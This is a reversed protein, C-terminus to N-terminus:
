HSLLQTITIHLQEERIKSLQNQHLLQDKTQSLTHLQRKLELIQEDKLKLLLNLEKLQRRALELDDSNKSIKVDKV